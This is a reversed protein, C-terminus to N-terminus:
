DLSRAFDGWDKLSSNREPHRQYDRLMITIVKRGKTNLKIWESVYQIARPTSKISPATKQFAKILYSLTTNKYNINESTSNSMSYKTPFIFKVFFKEFYHAEKRTSFVKIQCHPALSSISPMIINHLRWEWDQQLSQESRNEKEALRKDMRIQLENDTEPVVVLCLNNVGLRIRKQEAISLFIVVGFDM